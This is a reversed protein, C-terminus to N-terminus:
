ENEQKTKNATGDGARHVKARALPNANASTGGVSAPRCPQGTNPRYKSDQENQVSKRRMENAKIRMTSLFHKLSWDQEGNFAWDSFVVEALAKYQEPTIGLSYCGQKMKLDGFVEVKLKEQARVNDAVTQKNNIINNYAKITDAPNDAPNDSDEIFSNSETDCINDTVNDFSQYFDYNCVTIISINNQSVKTIMGDNQLLKLFGIVMDRSRGWRKALFALSAVLQGRQLTVLQRGVLRREVRWSAMILLDSWWKYFDNNQWIWHHVIGRDILIKGAM